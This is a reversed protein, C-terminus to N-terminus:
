NTIASKLAFGNIPLQPLVVLSFMLLQCMLGKRLDPNSNSTPQERGQGACCGRV